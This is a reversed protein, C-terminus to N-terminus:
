FVSNNIDIQQLLRDVWTEQTSDDQKQRPDFIPFGYEKLETLRGKEQSVHALIDDIIGGGIGFLPPYKGGNTGHFIDELSYYISEDSDFLSKMWESKIFTNQIEKCEPDWIIRNILPKWRPLSSFFTETPMSSGSMVINTFGRNVLETLLRTSGPRGVITMPGHAFLPEIITGELDIAIYKPNAVLPEPRKIGGLESRQEWNM